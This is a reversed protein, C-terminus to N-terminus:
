RKIRIMEELMEDATTIIKTAASYARQTTILDTFEEALDVTSAELSSSAVVGAGGTGAELLSVDGSDETRLYANGNMAQMGNPNRFVAIPLKYIAQEIGNDFLARVIGQEDVSVGTLGGFLAGNVNNSILNSVSDFQTFGDASNVTGFTVDVTQPSLGSAASWPVSLTATGSAPAAGNVNALTGDTNFALTGTGVPNGGTINTVDGDYIVEYAWANAGTKVFSFRMPQSGGQSDFIEFTREFTAPTTGSAVDGAVYGATVAASAQLNARLGIADTAVATGTLQGVNIPEIDSRNAPIQGTDDLAWGQLFHGAANRLYGDADEEFAGARTYLLEGVNPDTNLTPTVAFFGNGSIALHTASDSAQLLGQRGIQLVPEARVGGAAFRGSNATSALLTSFQSEGSKYGVTNVNAINNSTLGLARTNASLGSVGTFLAGYLSM